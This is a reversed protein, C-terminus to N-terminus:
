EKYTRKEGRQAFFSGVYPFLTGDILLRGAPFIRRNAGGVLLIADFAEILTKAVAVAVRV